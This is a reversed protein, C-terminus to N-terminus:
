GGLHFRNESLGPVNVALAFLGGAMREGNVAGKGGGATTIFLTKLQPGGFTCTTVAAVPMDIIADVEGDPAVRM